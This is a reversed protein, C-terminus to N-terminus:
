PTDKNRRKAARERRDLTEDCLGSVYETLTLWPDAARAQLYTDWVRNKTRHRLRVTAPAGRGPPAPVAGPPTPPPQPDTAPAEPDAATEPVLMRVAPEGAPEREPEPPPATPQDDEDDPLPTPVQSLSTARRRVMNGRFANDAPM